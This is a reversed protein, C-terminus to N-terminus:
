AIKNLIEIGKEITETPAAFSIRFHTNKESFVNGPIILVNNEIAKIVFAQGDGGPAEPFIYFAGEPMTVHFRDKLGNYILDRKKGYDEIYSSVDFNSTLAKEGAVQAFSPACVFTYQQLKIMEQIIDSPGMAYGLRWGTMSYCKSFGNLILMDQTISSFQSISSCRSDYVFDEYIEDAIIFLKHKQAIQAVMKLEEESYVAGTPNNPSNIIIIKSKPTIQKEIKAADLKFDPYTNIFKPVGGLLKALHKYSVFYPDPILLEDGPEVLVNFALFLAGSVGTTIITSEPKYNYRDEYHKNVSQILEPIGQSVTYHNLGRDIAEQASKKIPDPIDYHPQGISLNIPNKLNAALHFVKRIGSADIQQMRTAIKM